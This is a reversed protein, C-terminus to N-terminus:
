TKTPTRGQEIEVHHQDWWKRWAAVDPQVQGASLTRLSTQAAKFVRLDGSHATRELANILAPIARADGLVALGRAAADGVAPDVDFLCQELAARWPESVRDNRGRAGLTQASQARVLWEPDALALHVLKKRLEVENDASHPLKELVAVARRRTESTPSDILPQVALVAPKGLQRLTYSALASVIGDGVELLGVLKPLAPEGVRVLENVARDFARRSRAPEAGTLGAHARVMEVILNDVLFRTLEPDALVDDREREWDDGGRAYATLVDRQPQPLQALPVVHATSDKPATKPSASTAPDSPAACAALLLVLTASRLSM